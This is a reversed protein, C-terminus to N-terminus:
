SSSPIGLHRRLITATRLLVTKVLQCINIDNLGLHQFSKITSGHVTGLAGFVLPVVEIRSNWLSQLEIALDLCKEIKEKHKDIVHRDMVCAVDILKTCGSHKNMFVLDPRRATIRRDTYLNFDYLLKYDANDLVPQPKYQWWQSCCSFGCLACLVVSTVANHRDLYISQAINPCGAVIHEITEPYMQCRRCLDSCVTHHIHFSFWNTNLAQDQAAVLLSKTVIRYGVFHILVLNKPWQGHLAKNQHYLQNASLIVVIM